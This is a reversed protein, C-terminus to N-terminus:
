CAYFWLVCLVCVRSLCVSVDGFVYVIGLPYDFACWCCVYLVHSVFVCGIWLVYVRCLCQVCMCRMCMTCVRVYVFVSMCKLM